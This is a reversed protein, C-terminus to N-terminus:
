LRHFVALLSQIDILIVQIMPNSRDGQEEVNETNIAVDHMVSAATVTKVEPESQISFEKTQVRPESRQVSLVRPQLSPPQENVTPPLIVADTQVSVPFRLVIDTGVKVDVPKSEVPVDSPIETHIDRASLTPPKYLRTLPIPKQKIKDFHDNHKEGTSVNRTSTTGHKSQCGRKSAEPNREFNEYRIEPSM